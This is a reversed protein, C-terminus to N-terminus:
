TPVIRRNSKVASKLETMSIEEPPNNLTKRSALRSYLIWDIICDEM